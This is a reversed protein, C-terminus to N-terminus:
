RAASRPPRHTPARSPSSRRACPTRRGRPLPPRWPPPSGPARRTAVTHDASVTSASAGSAADTVAARLSARGPRPRAGPEVLARDPPQAPCRIAARGPAPRGRRAPRCTSTGSGSTGRCARAPAATATPEARDRRARRRVHTSSHSAERPARGRAAERGAGPSAGRSGSAAAFRAASRSARTAPPTSSRWRQSRSATRPPSPAPRSRVQSSHSANAARSTSAWAGPAAARSRDSPPTAAPRGSPQGSRSSEPRPSSCRSHSACTRASPGSRSSTRASSPQFTPRSSTSPPGCMASRQATSARVTISCSRNRTWRVHSHPSEDPRGASSSSKAGGPPTRAGRGAGPIAIVPDSANWGPAAGSRASTTPSGELERGRGTRRCAARLARQPRDRLRDRRVGPELLPRDHQGGRDRVTTVPTGPRAPRRVARQREAARIAGAPTQQRHRAPPRDREEPEPVPLREAGPRPRRRASPATTLRTRRARTM